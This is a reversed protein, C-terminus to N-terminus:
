KQDSREIGATRGATKKSIKMKTGETESISTEIGYIIIRKEM